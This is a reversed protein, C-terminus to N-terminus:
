FPGAARQDNVAGVANDAGKGVMRQEHDLFAFFQAEIAAINRSHVIAPRLRLLTTWLRWYFGLDHGERKGLQTKTNVQNYVRDNADLAIGTFAFSDRDDSDIIAQDSSEDLERHDLNDYEHWQSEFSGKIQFRSDEEEDKRQNWNSKTFDM